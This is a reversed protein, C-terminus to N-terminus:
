DLESVAFVDGYSLDFPSRDYSRLGNQKYQGSFKKVSMM